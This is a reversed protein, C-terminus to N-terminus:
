FRILVLTKNNEIPQISSSTFRYTRDTQNFFALASLYGTQNFTSDYTLNSEDFKLSFDLSYLTDDSLIYVPVSAYDNNYTIKSLDFVISDQANVNATASGAAVLIILAPILFLYKKM